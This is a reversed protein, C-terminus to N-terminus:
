KFSAQQVLGHILLLLPLPKKLIMSGYWLLKIKMLRTLAEVPLLLNRITKILYATRFIAMLLCPSRYQIEMKCGGHVMPLNPM